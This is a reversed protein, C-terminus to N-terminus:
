FILKVQGLGMSPFTIALSIIGIYLKKKTLNFYFIISFTKLLISQSKTKKITGMIKAPRKVIFDNVGCSPAILKKSFCIIQITSDNITKKAKEKISKLNKRRVSTSTVNNKSNLAKNTIKNIM